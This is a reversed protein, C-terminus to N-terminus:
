QLVHTHLTQYEATQGPRVHGIYWGTKGPQNWGEPITVTRAYKPDDWAPNAWANTWVKFTFQNGVARACVRWPFPKISGQLSRTGDASDQWWIKGVVESMDFQGILQYPQTAGNATDWVHVNFIWNAGYMINKTVTIGKTRVVKGQDDFTRNVRVAAGQQILGDSQSSWVACTQSDMVDPSSAPWVFERLNGGTNTAPATFKVDYGSAPIPANPDDNWEQIQYPQDSGDPTVVQAVLETGNWWRSSYMVQWTAASAHGSFVMPLAFAMLLSSYLVAKLRKM